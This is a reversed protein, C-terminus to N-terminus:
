CRLPLRLQDLLRFFVHQWPNWSLLRYVIKRGTRIIAAPMQVFAQTFTAFEMRLLTRKEERHKQAWRGNEPLLLAARAKLTWALSAMVMYAWNSLLTDVPMTMAKVGGKNIRAYGIRAELPNRWPVPSRGPDNALCPDILQAILNEQNCRQNADRVIGAASKKRDNTIYFFWRIDDFLRREGREVTLNKKLAILRYSTTCKTPRYDFEAM